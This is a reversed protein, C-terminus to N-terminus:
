APVAHSLSSTMVRPPPNRPARLDKFGPILRLHRHLDETAIERSEGEVQRRVRWHDVDLPPSPPAEISFAGEFRVDRGGDDRPEDGDGSRLRVEALFVLSASVVAAFVEENAVASALIADARNEEEPVILTTACSREGFAFGFWYVVGPRPAAGAPSALLELTRRALTETVFLTPVEGPSGGSPRNPTGRFARRAQRKKGQHEELAAEVSQWHPMPPNKSNRKEQSM